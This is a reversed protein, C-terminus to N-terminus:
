ATIPRDPDVARCDGELRAVSPEEATQTLPTEWRAVQMKKNVRADFELRAVLARCTKKGRADFM